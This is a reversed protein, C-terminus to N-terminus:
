GLGQGSLARIADQHDRAFTEFTRPERGTVRVVDDTLDEAHGDRTKSILALTAHAVEEPQGMAAAGQVWQEDTLHQYGIPRGAVESLIGAIDALSVLEPGTLTYTAGDHGPELLAKAAVAAVDRSDIWGSRGQGFPLALMGQAVMPVFYGRTFNQNCWPPQLFTWPIGTDRVMAETELAWLDTPAQPQRMPTFSSQKVIHKVRHGKLRDVVARTFPPGVPGGPCLLFLKDVGDLAADITAPDEFAFPVTTVEDPLLGRKAPNHLAARVEVGPTGALEACVEVGIVGTAGTVLIVTRNSM